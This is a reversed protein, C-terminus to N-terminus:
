YALQGYFVYWFQLTRRFRFGVLIFFIIISTGVITKYNSFLKKGLLGARVSFDKLSLGLSKLWLNFKSANEKM